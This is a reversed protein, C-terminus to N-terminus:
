AAAQDLQEKVMAELPAVVDAEMLAHGATVREDRQPGAPVLRALAALLEGENRAYDSLGLESM